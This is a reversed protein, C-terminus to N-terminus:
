DDEDEELLRDFADKKTKTVEDLTEPHKFYSGLIIATAHAQTKGTECIEKWKKELLRARKIALRVDFECKRLWGSCGPIGIDRFIETLIFETLALKRSTADYKLKKKRVVVDKKKTLNCQMAKSKRPQM